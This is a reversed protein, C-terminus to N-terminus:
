GLYGDDEEVVEPVGGVRTAVVPLQSAMAEIISMGLSESFSPNVYLDANNFYTNIKEHVVLDIFDVQNVLKSPLQKKLFSLYGGKYFSDLASIKINGSLEVIYERPMLWEPGVIKLTAEPLQRVVRQFADLLVHLGKEPSIRGVYLLRKASNKKKISPGSKDCFRDPDVGMYITQCRSAYNPFRTRIGQSVFESVSLIFDTKSLWGEVMSPDVQTLWEGHMHLVIPIGPNHARVVPVFNPFNVIHIIDCKQRQVDQAITSIYKRYGLQSVFLPRKKDHFLSLKKFLKLLIEDQGVLIRRYEVGEHYEKNPQGEGKRAYVITECSRALRRAIEYVWISVSGSTGSTWIPGTPQHIIAVKM